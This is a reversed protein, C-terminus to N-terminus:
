AAKRPSFKGRQSFAITSASPEPMRAGEILGGIQSRHIGIDELSHDDLAMLEAFARERRRWESFARGASIFLNIVSM